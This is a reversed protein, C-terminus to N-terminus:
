RGVAIKGEELKVSGGGIEDLVQWVQKGIHIEVGGHITKDVIVQAKEALELKESLQELEIGLAEVEVLLQVRTADVKEAVGGAGKNPNKQFYAILKLVSDLEEIKRKHLNEKNAIEENLYPDLGIQVYTKIGASSGLIGTKVLYTAQIRGGIIQSRGSGSKGVIVENRAVLECQLASREIEISAGAELHANEVFLAHISGACRIRANTAAAAQGAKADSHGIIGCKVIINGGATIEAAEVTGSVIVDGTVNLTMGSKVDGAINITGEFLINGTSLDVDPVEVVPNVMVGNEVLKPQGPGTAILYDPNNPDPAAGQLNEAYVLEPMAKALVIQGKIDTGSKGSIAPIRVMLRDGPHTLLLHGLDSFKIIAKEDIEVPKADDKDYLTEFRGVVGPQPHDGQAIVLNECHGVALAAELKGRLIGYIIGQLRIEELVEEVASKGGQPPVLTLRADMLDDAIVLSFEGDRRGGVVMDLMEKAKQCQSTFDLLAKEDLYLDGHGDDLLAERIMAIKPAPEDAVPDFIAHLESTEENLLFSLSRM